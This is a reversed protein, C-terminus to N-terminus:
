CSCRHKRSPVSLGTICFTDSMPWREEEREMNCAQFMNQLLGRGRLTPCYVWIAPRTPLGVKRISDRLNLAAHPQMRLM